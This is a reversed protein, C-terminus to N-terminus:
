NRKIYPKFIILVLNRYIYSFIYTLIPSLTIWNVFRYLNNKERTLFFNKQSAIFLLNKIEKYDFGGSCLRTFGWRKCLLIDNDLINAPLTNKNKLDEINGVVRILDLFLNKTHSKNISGLTSDKHVVYRYINLNTSVIRKGKCSFIQLMFLLDEAIAYNEFKLCNEVVLDKAILNNWVSLGIGKEKAKEILSGHYTIKHSKINEWEEPKYYRDITRSNFTVVDPYNFPIIYNDILIRLGNNLIRDDGDMFYLYKGKAEKIGYNRAPGVGKHKQYFYRFNMNKKVMDLIINESKDTSGDNIIIVEFERYELGQSLVSNLCETIYKECNYVPIIISILM